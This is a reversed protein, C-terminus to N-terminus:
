YYISIKIIPCSLLILLDVFQDVFAYCNPLITSLTVLVAGARRKAFDHKTRITCKKKRVKECKSVM